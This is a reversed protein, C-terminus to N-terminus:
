LFKGVKASAISRTRLSKLSSMLDEEEGGEQKGNVDEDDVGSDGAGQIVTCYLV